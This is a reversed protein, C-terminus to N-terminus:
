RDDFDEPSKIYWTDGTEYTTSGCDSCRYETPDIGTTVQESDRGCHLCVVIDAVIVLRARVGPWLGPKQDVGYRTDPHEILDGEIHPRM